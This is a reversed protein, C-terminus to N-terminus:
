EIEKIVKRIARRDFVLNVTKQAAIRFKVIIEKKAYNETKFKNKKKKM